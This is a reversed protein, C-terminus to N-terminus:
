EVEVQDDNEVSITMNRLCTYFVISFKSTDM